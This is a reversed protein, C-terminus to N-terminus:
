ATVLQDASEGDSTEATAGNANAAAEIIREASANAIGIMVGLEEAMERSESLLRGNAACEGLTAKLEGLVLRAQATSKDLAGVVDTLAGDKVAKLSRMMRVSQILVALCFAMTAINTLTAFNM